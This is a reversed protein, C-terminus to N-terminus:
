RTRTLRHSARLYGRVYAEDIPRRQAPRVIAHVTTATAALMLVAAVMVAAPTLRDAQGVLLAIFAGAATPIALIRAPRTM